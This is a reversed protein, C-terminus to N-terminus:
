RGIHTAEEGYNTMYFSLRGQRQADYMRLTDCNQLPPLSAVTRCTHLAVPLASLINDMTNLKIM